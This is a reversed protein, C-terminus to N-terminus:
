YNERYLPTDLHFSPHNQSTRGRARCGKKGQASKGRWDWPPWDRTAPDRRPAPGTERRWEPANRGSRKVWLPIAIENQKQISRAGAFNDPRIAEDPFTGSIGHTVEASLEGEQQSQHRYRPVQLAAQAHAAERSQIDSHHEELGDGGFVKQTVYRM